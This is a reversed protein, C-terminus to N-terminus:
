RRCISSRIELFPAFVTTMADNVWVDIPGFEQEVSAAAREIAEHDAVDLSLILAKGGCEEAERKAANLRDKGRAILGIHAKRRAFERVVARGVGAAAGTVVVVQPKTSRM